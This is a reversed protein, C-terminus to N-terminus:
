GCGGGGDWCMRGGSRQPLLGLPDVFKYPSNLVYSYRNFTQPNRISASATLPDPSTFRGHLPNYYRAQAFELGSEEDKQYGTYDQRINDPQYGLGAARQQTFIEEGFASYDRRSTVTGSGNTVVRPSGLHDQTLYSIGLATETTLMRGGAYVYSTSFTQNSWEEILQGSGDYVFTTSESATVKRVRKGEGDYQYTADPTSTQNNASFFEKQRGETDYRFRQGTADQTM